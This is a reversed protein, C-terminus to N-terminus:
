LHYKKQWFFSESRIANNVIYEHTSKLITKEIIALVSNKKKEVENIVTKIVVGAAVGAIAAPLVAVGITAAGLAVAGTTIADAGILACVMATSYYSVAGATGVVITAAPASSEKSKDKEKESVAIKSYHFRLDHLLKELVYNHYEKFLTSECKLRNVSYRLENNKIAVTKNAQIYNLIAIFEFLPDSFKDLKSFADTIKEELLATYKALNDKTIKQKPM